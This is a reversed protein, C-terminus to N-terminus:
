RIRWIYIHICLAILFFAAVAWLKLQGEMLEKIEASERLSLFIDLESLRRRSACLYLTQTLKAHKGDNEVSRARQSVCGICDFM